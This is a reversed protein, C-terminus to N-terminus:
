APYYWVRLDLHKRGFMTDDVLRPINVGDITSQSPNHRQVLNSRYIIGVNRHSTARGLWCSDRKSTTCRYAVTKHRVRSESKVSLKCLRKTTAVNKYPNRTINNSWIKIRTITSTNELCAWFATKHIIKNGHKFLINIPKQSTM